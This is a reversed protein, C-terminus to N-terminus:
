LSFGFCSGTAIHHRISIMLEYIRPLVCISGHDPPRSQWGCRFVAGLSASDTERLSMWALLHRLSLILGQVFLPSWEIEVGQMSRVGVIFMVVLEADKDEAGVDSSDRPHLIPVAPLADNEGLPTEILKTSTQQHPFPISRMCVHVIRPLGLSLHRGGLEMSSLELHRAPASRLRSRWSAEM